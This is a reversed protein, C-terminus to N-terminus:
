SADRARATDDPSAAARERRRSLGLLILVGIGATFVVCTEGLTDFGRYSALVSTVVNPITTDEVSHELYYPAVHQHIPASRDGFNPMDLTGYILTAGTLLVILLPLVRRRPLRKVERTTLSLTTLMLVTSIGVGVAAETLAVDVADLHTFLAASLLSYVGFLMVVSVLDRQYVAAIAVV